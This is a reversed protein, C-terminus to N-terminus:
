KQLSNNTFNVSTITTYTNATVFLAGGRDQAKNSHFQCGLISVNSNSIFVVGGKEVATNDNFDSDELKLCESTTVDTHNHYLVGGNKGSNNYFSSTTISVLCDLQHIVGGSVTAKNNSFTSNSINVRTESICYVVGGALASNNTFTSLHVVIDSELAYITGGSTCFDDQHYNNFIGSCGRSTTTSENIFHDGFDDSHAMNNLFLCKEITVFSNREVHLVGGNTARSDTFNCHLMSVNSLSCSLAGGKYPGYSNFSTFHSRVIHATSNTIMLARGSKEKDGKVCCDEMIFSEVGSVENELCGNLTLGSINVLSQFKFKFKTSTHCNIIHRSSEGTSSKLTVYPTDNLSFVTSNLAYNGPLFIVELEVSDVSYSDLFESLTMCVDEHNCVPLTFSPSESIYVTDSQVLIFLLSLYAFLLCSHHSMVM